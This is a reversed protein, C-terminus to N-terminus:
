SSEETYELNEERQSKSVQGLGLGQHTKSIIRDAGKEHSKSLRAGEETHGDRGISHQPSWTSPGSSRGNCGRILERQPTSQGVIRLSRTGAFASSLNVEVETRNKRGQLLDWICAICSQPSPVMVPKIEDTVRSKTVMAKGMM